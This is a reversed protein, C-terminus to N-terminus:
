KITVIKIEFKYNKKKKKSNRNEVQVRLTQILQTAEVFKIIKKRNTRTFILKKKSKKYFDNRNIIKVM